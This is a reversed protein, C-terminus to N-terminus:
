RDKLSEKLVETAEKIAQKESKGYYRHDMLFMGAIKITVLVTPENTNVNSASVKFELPLTTNKVLTNM